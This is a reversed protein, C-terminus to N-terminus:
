LFRSLFIFFCIASRGSPVLMQFYRELPLLFSQTLEVFHQELIEECSAVDATEDLKKLIKKDPRMYPDYKTNAGQPIDLSSTRKSPSSKKTSGLSIMHPWHELAKVFYPNTVGIIVNSAPKTKTTFEKYDSDQVTFYPRVDGSYQIQLSIPADAWPVTKRKSFILHFSVPLIITSLALVADSGQTPSPSFVAVPEGLLVLEWCLWLSPLIERFTRHLKDDQIRVM